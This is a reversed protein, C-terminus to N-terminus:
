SLPLKIFYFHLDCMSVLFPLNIRQKGNAPPTKGSGMEAETFLTTARSSLNHTCM